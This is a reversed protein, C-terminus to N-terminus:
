GGPAEAAEVHLVSGRLVLNPSGKGHHYVCFVLVQIWKNLCSCIVSVSIDEPFGATRFM